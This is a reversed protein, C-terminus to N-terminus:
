PKLTMSMAKCLVVSRSTSAKLFVLIRGKCEKSMTIVRFGLDM